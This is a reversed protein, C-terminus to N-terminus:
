SAAAGAPIMGMASQAKALAVEVDLWKQLMNREDFIARMDATSVSDGFLTTDIFHLSM